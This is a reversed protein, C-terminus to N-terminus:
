TGAAFLCCHMEFRTVFSSANYGTLVDYEKLADNIQKINEWTHSWLSGTPKSGQKVECEAQQKASEWSQRLQAESLARFGVCWGEFVVAEVSRAGPSNVEQWTSELFRDGKGNFASKDYCPIKVQEHDSLAKFVARALNLDHTGPEGRHQVLPNSQHSAALQLQDEHRLYLDDISLM